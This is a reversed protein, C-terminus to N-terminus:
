SLFGAYWYFTMAGDIVQVTHARIIETPTVLVHQNDDDLSSIIQLLVPPADGSRFVLGGFGFDPCEANAGSFGDVPAASIAEMTEFGDAGSEVKPALTRRYAEDFAILLSALDAGNGTAAIGDCDYGVLATGVSGDLPVAMPYRVSDDVGVEDPQFPGGEDICSFEPLGSCLDLRGVEVSLTTSSSPDWSVTIPYLGDALPQGPSTPLAPSPVGIWNSQEFPPYLGLPFFDITQWGRAFADAVTTTPAETEPTAAVTDVATDATTAQTAPVTDADTVPVTVEVETVQTASSGGVDTAASSNDAPEAGDSDSGCAAIASLMLTALAIRIPRRRSPGGVRKTHNAM